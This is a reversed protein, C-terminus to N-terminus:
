RPPRATTRPPACRRGSDAHARRHAHARGDARADGIVLIMSATSRSRADHARAPLADSETLPADLDAGLDFRQLQPVARRLASPRQEALFFSVGLASILPAIRPADRLPRYAFREIVVGLVGAGAMAAVFMLAILLVLRSAPDPSGGVREARRLRHVAGIMFVDGHAFNLLKLIGYVITYGLAILAYLSGLADRRERTLQVFTDLRDRAHRPRELLPLRAAFTRVRGSRGVRLHAAPRERTAPNRDPSATNVTPSRGLLHRVHGAGAPRREPHLSGPLRATVRTKLVNTTILFRRVEARVDAQGNRVQM